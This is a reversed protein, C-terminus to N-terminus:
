FMILDVKLDCKFTMWNVWFCIKHVNQLTKQHVDFAAEFNVENHRFRMIHLYDKISKRWLGAIQSKVDLM